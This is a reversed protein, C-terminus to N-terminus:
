QTSPPSPSSLITVGSPGESLRGGESSSSEPSNRFESSGNMVHRKSVPSQAEPGFQSQLNPLAAAAACAAAMGPPLPVGSQHMYGIMRRLEDLANAQLFNEFKSRFDASSFVWRCWFIIRPLFCLQLKPCNGFPLLILTLFSQGWSMWPMTLTMCEDENGPTSTSGSSSWLCLYYM